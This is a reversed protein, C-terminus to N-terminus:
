PRYVNTITFAQEQGGPLGATRLRDWEVGAANDVDTPEITENFTQPEEATTEIEHWIGYDSSSAGSCRGESEESVNNWCGEAFSSWPLAPAAAEQFGGIAGTEVNQGGIFRPPGSEFVGTGYDDGGIYLDGAYISRFYIPAPSTNKVTYSSTFQAAGEVYTTTETILADENGEFDVVKFVTVETM